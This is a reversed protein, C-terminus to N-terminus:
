DAHFEFKLITLDQGHLDLFTLIAASLVVSIIRQNM